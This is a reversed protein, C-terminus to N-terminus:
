YLKIVYLEPFGTRNQYVKRYNSSNDDFLFYRDTKILANFIFGGIEYDEYYETVMVRPKRGIYYIYTLGITDRTRNLRKEKVLEKLVKQAIREKNKGTFVIQAIQKTTLAGFTQILNVIEQKRQHGFLINNKSM